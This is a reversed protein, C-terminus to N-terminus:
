AAARRRRFMVALAAASVAAVSMVASPEPVPAANVTSIQIYDVFGSSAENGSTTTDDTFFWIINNAADFVANSGTDTFSFQQVGNVSGVVQGTTSDRSLSVLVPTGATIPTGGPFAISYFVLEGNRNYLGADATLNKFDLIKRYGSTNDFSFSIDIVYDNSIGPNSLSLGQGDGFTYGSAGVTGGNAVLSPGGLSDALTGNLQYDHVLTAAGATGCLAAVACAIASVLTPMRKM